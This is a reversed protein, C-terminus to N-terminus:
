HAWDTVRVISSPSTKAQRGIRSEWTYLDYGNMVNGGPNVRDEKLPMLRGKSHGGVCPWYMQSLTVSYGSCSVRAGYGM